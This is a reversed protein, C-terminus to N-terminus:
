VCCVHTPPSGTLFDPVGSLCPFRSMSVRQGQLPETAAEVVLAASAATNSTAGLQM